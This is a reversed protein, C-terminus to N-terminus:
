GDNKDQQPRSAPRRSLWITEVPTEISATHQHLRAILEFALDEALRSIEAATKPFRPYNIFGVVVGAEQGGTYVYDTPTVTVCAGVRFCWARCIEQARAFDGAIWIRASCSPAVERNM